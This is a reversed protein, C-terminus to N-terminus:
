AGQHSGCHYSTINPTQIDPDPNSSICPCFEKQYEEEFQSPLIRNVIWYKVDRPPLCSGMQGGFNDRRYFQPHSVNNPMDALPKRGSSSVAASM